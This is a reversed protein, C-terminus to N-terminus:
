IVKIMETNVQKTQKVNENYLINKNDVIKRMNTFFQKDINEKGTEKKDDVYDYTDLICEVMNGKYKILLETAKEKSVDVQKMLNDIDLKTLQYESM